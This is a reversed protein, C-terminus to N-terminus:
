NRYSPKAFKLLQYLWASPLKTTAPITTLEIEPVVALTNASTEFASPVDLNATSALDLVDVRALDTTEPTVVKADSLMLMRPTLDIMEAAYLGDSITNDTEPLSTTEAALPANEVVDSKIPLL